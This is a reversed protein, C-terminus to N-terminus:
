KVVHDEGDIFEPLASSEVFMDPFYYRATENDMDTFEISDFAETELIWEQVEDSFLDFMKANGGGALRYTRKGNKTEYIAASHFRFVAHETFVVNEPRTLLLTCASACPGDIVITKNKNEDLFKLTSIMGNLEGGTGERIIIADTAKFVKIMFQDTSNSGDVMAVVENASFKDLVTQKSTACGSVSLALVTGLLAAVIKSM